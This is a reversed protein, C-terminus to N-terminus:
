EDLSCMWDMAEEDFTWEPAKNENSSEFVIKNLTPCHNKWELIVDRQTDFYPEHFLQPCRLRLWFYNLRTM